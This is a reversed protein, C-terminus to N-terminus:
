DEVVVEERQRKTKRLIKKMQKAVKILQKVQTEARDCSWGKCHPRMGWSPLSPIWVINGNCDQCCKLEKYTVDQKCVHHQKQKFSLDRQETLRDQSSEYAKGCKECLGVFANVNCLPSDRLRKMKLEEETLAPRRCCPCVKKHLRDVCERCIRHCIFQVSAHEPCKTETCIPCEFSCAMFQCNSDCQEKCCSMKRKTCVFIHQAVNQVV